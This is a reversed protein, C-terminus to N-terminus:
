DMNHHLKAVLFFPLLALIWFLKTIKKQEQENLVTTTKKM